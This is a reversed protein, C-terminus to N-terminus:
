GGLSVLVGSPSMKITVRPDPAVDAVGGNLLVSKVNQVGAVAMAWAIIQAYSLGEGLGLANVGTAVAAQIQSAVVNGDYGELVYAIMSITATTTQPAYVACNVSLPRVAEIANRVSTVFSPDPSGTGDDAVVYFFGPSFAGQLTENEVLSWEVPFGINAIASAVGDRVGKSLGKVYAVFRARFDADSESDQGGEADAANTVLDVGAVVSTIQSISGSVVNGAAGAVVARVPVNISSVGAPMVYGSAEQVYYANSLSETVAFTVSGDLTRVTAGVPILPSTPGASLRSFTVLATANTAGIRSLAFDAMWSDLDAGTATAARTTMLLKLILGQLWLAVGSVSEGIARLMSGVSFDALAAARGQVGSAFLSVLASQSKTPLTPM